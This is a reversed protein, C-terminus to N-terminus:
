KHTTGNTDREDRLDAITQGVDAGWLGRGTGRETGAGLCTM